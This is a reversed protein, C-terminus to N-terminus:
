VALRYIPNGLADAGDETVSMGIAIPTAPTWGEVRTSVRTGDPRSVIAALYPTRDRFAETSSNIVTFTYIEATETM